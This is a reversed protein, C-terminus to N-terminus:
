KNPEIEAETAQLQENGVKLVYYTQGLRKGDKFKRELIDSPSNISGTLTYITYNKPQEEQYYSNIKKTLETLCNFSLQTAPVGLKLVLYREIDERGTIKKTELQQWFSTKNTPM